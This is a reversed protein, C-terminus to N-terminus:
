RDAPFVLGIQKRAKDMVRASLLSHDYSNILSEFKEGSTIISVFEQIEYYMPPHDEQQTYTRTEGNRYYFTVTSFDGIKDITVTGEEGQIETPIHTDSIKSFAAAIDMQEYKMIVSGSGDVGSELMFADAKINNPEGFLVIMPYICYVGLDMLAGNSFAPNFANLVTGDKYADYRSSYKCCSVNVKRITGITHLKERLLQFNPLFTTRVAEMLLVNNEKAAAIMEQAERENSALPKECLVHIGKNLFTIAQSCHLSNPSAIYVADIHNKSAMEDIDTFWDRIGHTEAFAKARVEARSYVAKLQFDDVGESAQIFRDTIWNTGIIGFRIM